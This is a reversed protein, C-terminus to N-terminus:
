LSDMINDLCNRYIYEFDVQNQYVFHDHLYKTKYFIGNNLWYIKQDNFYNSIDQASYVDGNSFSVPLEDFFIGCVKYHYICLENCSNIHRNSTANKFCEEIISTKLIQAEIRDRRLTGADHPMSHSISHVSAPFLIVGIRGTYNHNEFTDGPRITSCSIALQNDIVNKLNLLPNNNNIVESVMKTYSACHVIISNTEKLIAYIHKVPIGM